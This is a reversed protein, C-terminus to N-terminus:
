LPGYQSLLKATIKEIFVRDICEKALTHIEEHKRPHKEKLSDVLKKFKLIEDMYSQIKLKHRECSLTEASEARKTIVFEEIHILPIRKAFDLTTTCHSNSKGIPRSRLQGIQFIIEDHNPYEITQLLVSIKECISKLSSIPNISCKESKLFFDVNHLTLLGENMMFEVLESRTFMKEYEKLILTLADLDDSAERLQRKVDEKLIFDLEERRSRLEDKYVIRLFKNLETKLDLVKRETDEYQETRFRVLFAICIIEPNLPAITCGLVTSFNSVFRSIKEFLETSRINLLFQPPIDIDGMYLMPIDILGILSKMLENHIKDSSKPGFFEQIICFILEEVIMPSIGGCCTMQILVAIMKSFEFSPLAKGESFVTQVDTACPPLMRITDVFQMSRRHTAETFESTLLFALVSSILGIYQNPIASGFKMGLM